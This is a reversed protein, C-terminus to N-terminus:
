ITVLSLNEVRILNLTETQRWRLLVLCRRWWSHWTIRLWYCFQRLNICIGEWNPVPWILSTEIRNSSLWHCRLKVLRHAPICGLADHRLALVYGSVSSLTAVELPQFAVLREKDWPWFSALSLAWHQFWTQFAVLRKKDWHWFTALSLAWHRSWVCSTTSDEVWRLNMALFRAQDFASQPHFIWRSLQSIM